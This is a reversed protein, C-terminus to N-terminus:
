RARQFPLSSCLAVRWEANMCADFLDFFQEMFRKEASFARITVIGALGSEFAQFVPSMSVSKIRALDRSVRLFQITILYFALAIFAAPILFAPLLSFILLLSGGIGVVAHTVKMILTLMYTDITGIDKIFRNSLRGSPTVDFWRPTARMVSRLLQPPPSRSILEYDRTDRDTPPSVRAHLKQSARYKGFYAVLDEVLTIIIFALSIAMYVGLYFLPHDKAVPLHSTSTSIFSQSSTSTSFPHQAQSESTSNVLNLLTPISEEVPRTGTYSSPRHDALSSLISFM